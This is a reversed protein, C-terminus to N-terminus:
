LGAQTLKDYIGAFGQILKSAVVGGVICALSVGAVWGWLNM